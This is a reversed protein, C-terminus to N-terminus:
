QYLNRGDIYIVVTMLMMMMMMGDIREMATTDDEKMHLVLEKYIQEQLGKTHEMESEAYRNEEDIYQKVKNKWDEAIIFAFFFYSISM